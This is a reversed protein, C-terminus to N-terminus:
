IGKGLNKSSTAYVYYIIVTNGKERWWTARIGASFNRWSFRIMGDGRNVYGQGHCLTRLQSFEAVLIKMWLWLESVHRVSNMGIVDWASPQTKKPQLSSWAGGLKSTRSADLGSCQARKPKTAVQSAKLGELGWLCWPSTSVFKMKWEFWCTLGVQM